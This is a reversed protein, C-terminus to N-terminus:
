TRELTTILGSAKVMMEAFEEQADSDITIGGGAHFYVKKGVKTLTRIPINFRASGTGSFFGLAGTYISRPTEELEAIIEMARKKPAGTISGGPFINQLAEIISVDDKLTGTIHSVLHHVQAFSEVNFLPEVKVSGEKCIKGLDNRELDIIMLLEAKNKESNLLTNKLNEDKIKDADRGVTGKIPHTTIQRNNIELFNEPSASLIQFDGTNLFAGYPVPSLERLKKYLVGSSADTEAQFQETLNVQYIDGDKLYNKIKEIKKLYNKYNPKKLFTSTGTLNTQKPNSSFLFNEAETLTVENKLTTLYTKNEKHDIVLTWEYVGLWYNPIITSEKANIKQYPSIFKFNEYALYGMIMNDSCNKELTDWPSNNGSLIKTPKFGAYSYRSRNHHHDSSDLFFSGSNESVLDILKASDITSIEKNFIM